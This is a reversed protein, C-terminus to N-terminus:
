LSALSACVLDPWITLMQDHGSSVVVTRVVLVMLPGSLQVVAGRVGMPNRLLMSLVIMQAPVLLGLLGHFM